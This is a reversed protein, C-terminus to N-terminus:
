RKEESIVFYMEDIFRSDRIYELNIEQTEQAENGKALPHPCNKIFSFVRNAELGKAKHITAFNVGDGAEKSFIAEIRMIVKSVVFCGDSIVEITEMKDRLVEAQMERGLNSLKQCELFGYQNLWELMQSVECDLSGNSFRKIMEILQSSLDKGIITAKRGVRLLNFVHKVLPANMRCLVLDGDRVQSLLDEEKITGIKGERATSLGNFKIHPFTENIHKVGVKPVRFTVSLSLEECNFLSKITDMARIDAGRFGYCSQNRDGVAVLHKGITEQLLEIQCPNFDQVEDAFTWAYKKIPLNHYIPLFLMDDFDIVSFNNIVENWVKDIFGYLQKKDSKPNLDIGYEIILNEVVEPITPDVLNNKALGIIKCTPGIMWRMEKIRESSKGIIAKCTDATKYSSIETKGLKNVETYLRVAAFGHQHTTMAPLGKAQAEERNKTNFVLYVIDKEGQSKLLQIAQQITTTKGSGACAEVLLSSFQKSALPNDYNSLCWNFIIQQEPTPDFSKKSKIGEKRIKEIQYDKLIQRCKPFSDCGWFIGFKGNREVMQGVGCGPCTIENEAYPIPKM